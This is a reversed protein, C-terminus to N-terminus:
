NLGLDYEKAKIKLNQYKFKIKIILFYRQGMQVLQEPVTPAIPM